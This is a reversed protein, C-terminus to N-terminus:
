LGAGILYVPSPGLTVTLSGSASSIANQCTGMWNCVQMGGTPIKISTTSSSQYDWLALTTTGNRQFRYGM